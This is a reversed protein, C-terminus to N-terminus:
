EIKLMRKAKLIAELEVAIESSLSACAISLTKALGSYNQPIVPHRFESRKIMITKSDKPDIVMWQAVLFMDKDLESDLQIIELVVQYKVEISQNWPYLVFKVGPIMVLLDEGIIRQLGIELSEGWRDFQAFKIMKEKDQTVIQPRNQYGPIKIPGVGILADSSINIKKSVLNESVAGLVYFRPSPTTPVLACGNLVLCFCAICIFRCYDRLLNILGNNKKQKM